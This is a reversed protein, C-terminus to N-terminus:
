SESFRVQEKEKSDSMFTRESKSDKRRLWSPSTASEIVRIQKFVYQLARPIVGRRGRDGSVDSVRNGVESALAWLDHGLM